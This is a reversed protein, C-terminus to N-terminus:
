RCKFRSGCKLVYVIIIISSSSRGSGGSTNCLASFSPPDSSKKYARNSLMPIVLSSPSCSPLLLLFSL